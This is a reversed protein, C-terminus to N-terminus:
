ILVRKRVLGIVELVNCNMAKFQNEKKGWGTASLFDMLLKDARAATRMESSGSIQTKMMGQVRLEIEECILTNIYFCAAIRM